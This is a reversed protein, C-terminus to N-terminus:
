KKFLNLYCSFMMKRLARGKHLDLNGSPIKERRGPSSEKVNGTAQTLLHHIREAKTSRFFTKIALDQTPLDIGKLAKFTSSWEKRKANKKKKLLSFHAIKRIRTVKHTIDKKKSAAEERGAKDSIKCLKHM